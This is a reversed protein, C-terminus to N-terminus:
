SIFKRGWKIPHSGYSNIGFGSELMSWTDKPLGGLEHGDIWFYM